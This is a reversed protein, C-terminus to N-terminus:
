PTARFILRNEHAVDKVTRTAKRAMEQNIIFKVISYMGIGRGRFLRWWYIAILTSTGGFGLSRM